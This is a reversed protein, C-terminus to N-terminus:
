RASTILQSLTHLRKTDIAMATQFLLQTQALKTSELDIDVNNGDNRMSTSGDTVSSPSVASVDAEAGAGGSGLASALSDEFSVDSRKYGPTNVNAINNSLAAQRMESGRMAVELAASTVDFLGM